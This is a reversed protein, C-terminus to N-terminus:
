DKPIYKAYFQERTTNLLNIINNRKTNLDNNIQNYEKVKNNYVKIKNNYNDVQDKTRKNAPTKELAVKDKEMQNSFENFEVLKPIKNTAEDEFFEFAKKLVQVFRKDGKYLEVNPLDNLGEKSTANLKLLYENIKPLDKKNLAEMLSIENIQVKFFRLFV